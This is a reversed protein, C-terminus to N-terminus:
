VTIDQRFASVLDDFLDLPLDAVAITHAAARMVAPAMALTAADLASTAPSVAADAVAAHLRTTWEDLRAHRLDPTATGEDAIDDALRAFAYVAAVHLRMPAPMLRSAV